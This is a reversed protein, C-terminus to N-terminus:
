AGPARLLATTGAPSSRLAHKWNGTRNRTPEVNAGLGVRTTENRNRINGTNGAASYIAMILVSRRYPNVGAGGITSRAVQSRASVTPTACKGHIGAPRRIIPM